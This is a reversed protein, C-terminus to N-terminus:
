ADGALAAESLRQKALARDEVAYCYVCGHPCSGYDGIDRSEYCGCGPRNGKLKASISRGAVDSLREVDICRASKYGEGLLDPQSCLTLKMGHRQAMIALEGALRIKEESKPDRWSFGHHHAAASLNRETKKYIQAFSVCVEDVAGTLKTALQSFNERHWDGNTLSTALIPDYRWVVARKGYLHALDHIAAISREADITAAELARPYNTITYQVIFPTGQRVIKELCPRFPLINRTWFVFGSVAKASLDVRYPKGSYPNVVSCFGAELRKMFWPGYFAPIDTRYSASIIMAGLVRQSTETFALDVVAFASPCPLSKVERGVAGKM